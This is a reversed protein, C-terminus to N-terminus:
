EVDVLYGMAGDASLALVHPADELFLVAQNQRIQLPSNFVDVPEFGVVPLPRVVGLADEGIVSVENLHTRGVGHKGYSLFLFDEKGPRFKLKYLAYDVGKPYAVLGINQDNQWALAMVRESGPTGTLIASIQRPVGKTFEVTLAPQLQGNQSFGYKPAFYQAAQFTPIPLTLALALAAAEWKKHM